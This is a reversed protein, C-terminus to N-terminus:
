SVEVLLNAYRDVRVRMDPEIVTTTDAQEVVAPGVFCVGPTLTERAYVPTDVWQGFHVQRRRAPPLPTSKNPTQVASRKRERIGQVTTKLSVIMSPMDGLTSGYERQYAEEFAAVIRM